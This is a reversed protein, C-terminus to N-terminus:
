NILKLFECATSSGSSICTQDRPQLTGPPLCLLGNWYEQRSFGMSLPAQHAVPWLTVFLWGGSFHSLMCVCVCVCTGRFASSKLHVLAKYADWIYSALDTHPQQTLIIKLLEVYESQGRWIFLWKLCFWSELQKCLRNHWRPSTLSHPHSLM